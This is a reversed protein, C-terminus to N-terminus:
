TAAGLEVGLHGAVVAVTECPWDPPEADYGSFMDGMCRYSTGYGSWRPSHLTLLDTLPLAAPSQSAAALAAALLRLYTPNPGPDVPPPPKPANPDLARTLAKRLQGAEAMLEESAPMYALVWHVKIPEDTM